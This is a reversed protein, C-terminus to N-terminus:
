TWLRFTSFRLATLPNTTKQSRGVRRSVGTVGDDGGPIWRIVEHGSLYRGAEGGRGDLGTQRQAVDHGQVTKVSWKRLHIIQLEMREAEPESCPWGPGRGRAMSTPRALTHGVGIALPLPGPAAPTMVPIMENM